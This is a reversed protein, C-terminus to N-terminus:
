VTYKEKIKEIELQMEKELLKSYKNYFYDLDELDLKILDVERSHGEVSETMVLNFKYTTERTFCFRSIAEVVPDVQTDQAEKFKKYIKIFDLIM